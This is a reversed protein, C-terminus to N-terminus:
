KGDKVGLQAITLPAGLAHGLERAAIQLVAEVSTASQIKQSILNLTSEREAQKQAREFQLRNELVTAIQPALASFLRTEEPTFTHPEEALLRLVGIQHQGLILPLVALSKVNMRKLIQLEAEGMREDHFTDNFFVPNNSLFTSLVKLSQASYSMGIPAAETGIGNWWNAVDTMSELEGTANYNFIGLSARNVVPIHLMEVATKVLEQLDTAQTLRRSAEFLKESQALASQTRDSQRLSEIHTGLREAVANVLALSADDDPSLGEVALKGIAVDRVKIPLTVASAESSIEAGEHNPRVEKRDYRFGLNEQSKLAIYEKWGEQTLRRSAQEAEARYREASELLRLSEIQQAVQRAVANLLETAQQGQPQEGLEVVLSGLAKGSVAIPASLSNGNSTSEVIVTESLPAVKNQEYVFGIQEPKHIADLYDQWHTQSLRAAQQEVEARAQEAEELLNANQIAVALQGALAEFAPLIEQSLAGPRDSQMDLVGVVRNNIILPVAMESRTDPLLANPRFSASAATDSIIVPQKEVVARGNISNTNIPLSHGRATLEAGVTGTGSRLTLTTQTPNALYVQVYYLNFRTRIIEVAERLMTDLDRVQSVSRGVEAALELSHTREAVREELTGIMERLRDAMRNFASALTGLEDKSNVAARSELNGGALEVATETLMNIPQVTRNILQVLVVGALTTALLSLLISLILSRSQSAVVATRDASIELVGIVKGSYDKLPTSILSYTKNEPTIRSFVTEGQLVRQYVSPEAFYAKDFTTAQLLLEPIPGTVESTVGAFTAAEAAGKELLIQADVGYQQKIKQLYSPGIDLGIDVVGLHKGDYFIPVEGRIGLGGRGIEIGSVPKQTANAELVTFRISSLDDGFKDLQHLRLFSIAPPQIFQFQKVEFEKAVVEFTPLTIETLLKRDKAAFAAQVQPNNAIETALGLSLKEMDKLSAQVASLTRSLDRSAESQNRRVTFTAIYIILGLAVLAMLTVSPILLKRGVTWFPKQTAAPLSKTTPDIQTM